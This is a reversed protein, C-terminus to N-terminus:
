FNKKKEIVKKLIEEQESLPTNANVQTWINRSMLEGLAASFKEDDNKHEYLYKKLQSPTMQQLDVKSM